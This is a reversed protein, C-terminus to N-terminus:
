TASDQNQTLDHDWTKLKLGSDPKGSLSSDAQSEKKGEGAAGGGAGM